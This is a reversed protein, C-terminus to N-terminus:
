GIMRVSQEVADSRKSNGPWEIKANPTRRSWMALISVILALSSRDTIQESQPFTSGPPLLIGLTGQGFQPLVPLVIFSLM